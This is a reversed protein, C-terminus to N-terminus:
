RVANLATSTTGTELVRRFRGVLYTGAFVNYSLAVDDTDDKLIAVVVGDGNIWLARCVFPLDEDDSPVVLHGKTPPSDLGSFNARFDDHATM